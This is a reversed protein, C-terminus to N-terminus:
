SSVGQRKNPKQGQSRRRATQLPSHFPLIEPIQQLRWGNSGPRVLNAVVQAVKCLVGPLETERLQCAPDLLLLEQNVAAVVAAPAQGSFLVKLTERSRPGHSVVAHATQRNYLVQRGM